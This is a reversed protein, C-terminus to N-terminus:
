VYLQYTDGPKLYCHPNNQNYHDDTDLNCYVVNNSAEKDAVNTSVASEQVFFTYVLHKM